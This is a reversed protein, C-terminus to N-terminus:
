QIILKKSLIEAGYTVTVLYMGPRLRPLEVQRPTNHEVNIQTCYLKVGTISQVCLDLGNWNGSMLLYLEGSSNTPNPYIVLNLVQAKTEQLGISCSSGWPTWSGNAFARARVQYILGENLGEIDGVAFEPITNQLVQTETMDGGSILLEYVSASNIPQVELSDNEFIIEHNNCWNATLQTTEIVENFMITCLAGAPGWINKYNVRVMVKYIVEAELGPVESPIFQAEVNEFYFREGTINHEFRFEYKEAYAIPTCSNITSFTINHNGCSEDSLQTSGLVFSINCATGFDSNMTNHLGRVQITYQTNPIIFPIEFPTFSNNATVYLQSAQGPINFKWEYQEAQALNNCTILQAIDANGSECYSETIQTDSLSDCSLQLIELIGTTQCDNADTVNVEYFGPALSSFNNQSLTISGHQAIYPGTGGSINFSGAGTNSEGCAVHVINEFNIILPNPAILTVQLTITCQNDTIQSIYTGSSLGSIANGTLGNNWLVTYNGSLSSINLSISGDSEGFCSPNNLSLINATLSDCPECDNEPISDCVGCDDTYAPGNIVGACDYCSNWDNEDNDNCDLGNSVYGSPQMCFSQTASPNGYGDGDLDQYWMTNAAVNIYNTKTEETFGYQNTASLKVTYFGTSNYVVNTPNAQTSTAPIGGYFTWLYSTATGTTQNTFSAGEGACLNPTSSTFNAQPPAGNSLCFNNIQQSTFTGGSVLV